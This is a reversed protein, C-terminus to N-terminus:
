PMREWRTSGRAAEQFVRGAMGWQTMMVASPGPVPVREDVWTLWAIM